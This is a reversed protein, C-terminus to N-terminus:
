GEPVSLGDMMASVYRTFENLHSVTEQLADLALLGLGSLFLLLEEDERM